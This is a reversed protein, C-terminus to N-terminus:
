EGEECGWNGGVWGGIVGTMTEGGWAVETDGKEYGEGLFELASLIWPEIFANYILDVKEPSPLNEQQQQQLSTGTTIITTTTTTTNPFFIKSGICNPVDYFRTPAHLTDDGAAGLDDHTTYGPVRTPPPHDQFGQEHLPPEINARDSEPNQHSLLPIQGGAGGSGGNRWTSDDVWGKEEEEDEEEEGGWGRQPAMARFVGEQVAWEMGRGGGVGLGDEGERRLIPGESNLLGLVRDAASFPVDRIMRFGSTFPSILFTSDLTFPGQFLDFRLAGTNTLIISPNQNHHHHSNSPNTEANNAAPSTTTNYAAFSEPLIRDALLSLLSTNSPYPARNLWYTQPVCGFTQNLNLTQRAHEIQASVNRGHETAFTTSNTKTHHHFSHLNNDIYMRNYQLSKKIRQTSTTSTSVTEEKEENEHEDELKVDEEKGNGGGKLGKMSLFGITELYRGSEIGMANDEWRKFDRVHTHGGFFVIPTDWKVARIARYVADYEESERVPVHGAVLFLDVDKERLADQFWEEKLTEQVPQVRTNNANNHFNFLFGFALIRIGNNKTTFKRYRAALPRFDANQGDSEVDRIDLNSAIYNQRYAPVVVDSERRSTNALYLEHNGSTIVHIPQEEFIGNFTWYGKPDSADYLGNGEVRDGTDILLLDSGDADARDHLHSAFSIYDGWDASYQPEQLHGAHWGHTDTTHLFNLSNKGSAWPLTRLPASIPSPASPQAASALHLFALFVSLPSSPPM